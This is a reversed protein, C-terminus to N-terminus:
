RTKTRGEIQIGKIEKEQRIGSAPIELVTNFVVHSLLCGQKEHKWRGKKHEEHVSALVNTEANRTRIM